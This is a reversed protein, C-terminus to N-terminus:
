RPTDWDFQISDIEANDAEKADHAINIINMLMSNEGSVGKFGVWIMPPVTLRCYNERSLTEEQLENRSISNTRDDYLVFKIVGIPVLINLTVKRHRKWAKIAGPRITSFYAEGFGLFGLDSSKLGRFVDGGDTSIIKQPTVIVGEIMKQGRSAM